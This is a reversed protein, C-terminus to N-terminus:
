AQMMGAAILQEDSWGKEVYSEYSFGQAAPLMVRAAPAAPAAPGPPAAPAPPGALIATHPQTVVPTSPAATAPTAPAAPM